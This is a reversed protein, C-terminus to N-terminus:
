FALTEKLIRKFSDQTLSKDIRQQLEIRAKAEAEIKNVARVYLSIGAGCIAFLCIASIGIVWRVRLCVNDHNRDTREELKSIKEANKNVGSQAVRTEERLKEESDRINSQAISFALQKLAEQDIPPPPHM